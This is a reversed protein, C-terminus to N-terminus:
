RAEPAVNLDTFVVLGPLGVAPLAEDGSLLRTLAQRKSEGVAVLVTHTATALTVRNLTIRDAPPKPSERVWSAAGSAAARGPFLSAVHGDPGMGLLTIDLGGDLQDAFARELRAVAAAPTEGDEFLALELAPPHAADLAGSRHAEGRNSDESAFPVCREDVWTLRIKAWDEGLLEPLGRVVALASGGPIGLRASGREHIVASSLSALRERAAGVPDASVVLM